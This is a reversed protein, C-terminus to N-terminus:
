PFNGFPDCNQMSRVPNASFCAMADIESPNTVTAPSHPTLGNNCSSVLEPFM